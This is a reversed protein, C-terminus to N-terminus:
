PLIKKIGEDGKVSEKIIYITFLVIHLPKLKLWIRVRDNVNYSNFNWDLMGITDLSLKLAIYLKGNEICMFGFFVHDDRKDELIFL